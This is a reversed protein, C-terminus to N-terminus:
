LVTAKKRGTYPFNDQTMACSCLCFRKLSLLLRLRCFRLDPSFRVRSPNGSEPTNLSRIPLLQQEKSPRGTRAGREMRYKGCAAASEASEGSDQRGSFGLQFERPICEISGFVRLRWRWLRGKKVASDYVGIKM